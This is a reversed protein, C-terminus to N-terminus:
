AAEEVTHSMNELRWARAVGAAEQESTFRGLHHLRGNVQVSARWRQYQKDWSVGRYSSSGGYSPVNQSNQACTVARLNLRRNDLRDRNIHDVQLGPVGALVRHLYITDRGDRYHVTRVVCGKPGVHWRYEGLWADEEDILAYVRIEGRANRLPIKM